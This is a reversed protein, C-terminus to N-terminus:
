TTLRRVCQRSFQEGRETFDRFQDFSPAGPSLLVVVDEGEATPDDTSLGMALDLAVETAQNLSESLHRQPEAVSAALETLLRERGEGQVVVHTDWGRKLREVIEGILGGWVQQREVGGVILVLAQKPFCRLAAVTADPTTAISDNVCAVPSAMVPQLRHPLAKFSSINPLADAVNAGCVELTALALELNNLNHRGPLDWGDFTAVQKGQNFVGEDTVKWSEEDGAWQVNSPIGTVKKDTAHALTQHRSMSLLRLKDRHYIEISGHWDIHDSLLNTLVAFDVKGQLDALQYSSLEVVFWDPTPEKLFSIVPQGLNGGLLVTQGLGALLHGILSTTTSKGKTGTVAIVPAGPGEALWLSTGSTFQVGARRAAELEPRYISVGPSRVIVDFETLPLSALPGSRTAVNDMSRLPQEDLVTIKDLGISQGLVELVARGEVGGGLIAVSRGRLQEIRM